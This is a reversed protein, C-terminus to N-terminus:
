PGVPVLDSDLHYIIEATGLDRNSPAPVVPDSYMLDTVDPSHRFIGLAHGFEHATTLALCDNLGPADPSSIPDIYIRVPLRLQTHDDSVDIDTAGSCEPAFASRLRTRSFVAVGPAPGARVIVDAKSSDSVVIADFERYLFAARWAAVAKPVNATLNAADEVWVRVPLRDKPWHFTLSDVGIGSPAPVILRWEYFNDRIPTAIDSCAAAALLLVALRLTVPESM